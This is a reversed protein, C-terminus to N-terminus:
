WAELEHLAWACDSYAAKAVLSGTDLAELHWVFVLDELARKTTDIASVAQRIVVISENTIGDELLGLVLKVRAGDLVDFVKPAEKTKM